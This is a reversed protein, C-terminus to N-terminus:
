EHIRVNVAPDPYSRYEPGRRGEDHGRYEEHHGYDGGGRHGPFLCGTTTLLTVVSILLLIQKMPEITKEIKQWSRGTLHLRNEKALSTGNSGLRDLGNITFSTV